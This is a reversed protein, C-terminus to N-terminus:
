PLVQLMFMRFLKAISHLFPIFSFVPASMFDAGIRYIEMVILFTWISLIM